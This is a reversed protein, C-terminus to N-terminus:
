SGFSGSLDSLKNPVEDSLRQPKPQEALKQANLWRRYRAEDLPLSVRQHTAGSFLMANALEVSALGETAPAILPEEGRIARAFNELITRHQGGGGEFSISESATDPKQFPGNTAIAETISVHNRRIMLPQGLDLTLTADDCIIEM